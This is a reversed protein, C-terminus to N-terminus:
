KNRPIPIKIEMGVKLSESEPVYKRSIKFVRKQDSIVTVTNKDFSKVTGLLYLDGIVGASALSGMFALGILLNKKM